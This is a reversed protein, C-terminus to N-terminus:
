IKEENANIKIVKIKKSYTKQKSPKTRIHKKNHCSNCLSILNSLTLSLQPYDKLEKIHHVMDAPTIKNNKLCDQCLFNDRELALLRCKEWAVSHYFSAREKNRKHRDYYKNNNM